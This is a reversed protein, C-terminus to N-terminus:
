PSSSDFLSSQGSNVTAITQPGAATDGGQQQQQGIKSVSSSQSVEPKNSAWLQSPRFGDAPMDTELAVQLAHYLPEAARPPAVAADLLLEKPTINSGYFKANVDHRTAVVSGELSMGVFFGQSHAYAYAPQLSASSSIRAGRGIPGVAVGLEAGLNVSSDGTLTKVAQLSTLVVLYHTIDGGIQAGWGIGVTGIASPASWGGGELKSIVLGSGVKGSVVFGAKVVTLFCLGQAHQLLDLPISHDATQAMMHEVTSAAQRISSGLTTSLPNSWALTSSLSSSGTLNEDQCPAKNPNHLFEYVATRAEGQILNQNFQHVVDVLWLDLQVKRYSVLDDHQSPAYSKVPNWVGMRGKWSKAPFATEVVVGYKKLLSYLKAFEGYRHEINFQCDNSLVSTIYSTYEVGSADVRDEASVVRVVIGDQLLRRKEETEQSVGSGHKRWDNRAQNAMVAPSPTSPELPHPAPSTLPNSSQEEGQAQLRMADARKKADEVLSTRKPTVFDDNASQHQSM